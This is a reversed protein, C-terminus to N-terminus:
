ILVPRRAGRRASVLKMGETLKRIMTGCMKAARDTDPEHKLWSQSYDKCAAWLCDEYM